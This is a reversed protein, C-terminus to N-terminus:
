RHELREVQYDPEASLIEPYKLFREIAEEVKLGEPLVVLHLGTRKLVMKLHAGEAEIIEIARSSSVEERFELVVQGPVIASEPPKRTMGFTSSALVLSLVAALVLQLIPINRL